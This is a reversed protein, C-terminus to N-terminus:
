SDPPPRLVPESARCLQRREAAAPRGPGAMDLGPLEGVHRQRGQGAGIEAFTGYVASDLTLRLAKLHPNLPTENM